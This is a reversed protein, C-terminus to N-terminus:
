KIVEVDQDRLLGEFQQILWSVLDEDATIIAKMPGDSPNYESYRSLMAGIRKPELEEPAIPEPAPIPIVAYRHKTSLTFGFRLQELADYTSKLMDSPYGFFTNSRHLNKLATFMKEHPMLIYDDKESDFVMVRVQNIYPNDATTRSRMRQIYTDIRIQEWFGRIDNRSLVYVRDSPDYQLQSLVQMVNNSSLFSKTDSLLRWSDYAHSIVLQLERGLGHQTFVGLIENKVPPFYSYKKYPHWPSNPHYFLAAEAGTTDYTYTRVIEGHKTTFPENCFFAQVNINLRQLLQHTADSIMLERPDCFSLVRTAHNITDGIQIYGGGFYRSGTLPIISDRESYHLAARVIIQEKLLRIMAALIFALFGTASSSEIRCNRGVAVIAGDGTSFVDPKLNAIPELEQEIIDVFASVLAAQKPNSTRSFGEIDFVAVLSRDIEQIQRM